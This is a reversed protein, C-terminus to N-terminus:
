NSVGVNFRFGAMRLAVLGVAASLTIIAVRVPTGDIIAVQEAGTAVM